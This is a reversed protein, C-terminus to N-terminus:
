SHAPRYAEANTTFEADGYRALQKTLKRVLARDALDDLFPVRAALGYAAMRSTILLTATAAGIYDALSLRVGVDAAAKKDGRMFNRVFFLKAFGVELWAQMRGLLASDSVLDAAMTARVLAACREDFGSRLTAHRTLMIDVIGQPTDALLDEPLGLLFCRYRALEVRARENPAFATRGRRLM